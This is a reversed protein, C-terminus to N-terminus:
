HHDDPTDCARCVRSEKPRLYPFQLPYELTASPFANDRFALNDMDVSGMVLFIDSVFSGPRSGGRRPSRKWQGLQPMASCTVISQRQTAPSCTWKWQQPWSITFSQPEM